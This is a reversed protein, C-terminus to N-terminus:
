PKWTHVTLVMTINAYMADHSVSFDKVRFDSGFPTELMPPIIRDGWQERESSTGAASPSPTVKWSGDGLKDCFTGTPTVLLTGTPM